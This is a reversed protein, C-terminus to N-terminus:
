YPFYNIEEKALHNGTYEIVSRTEKGTRASEVNANKKQLLAIEAIRKFMPDDEIDIVVPEYWKSEWGIKNLLRVIEFKKTRLNYELFYENGKQSPMTFKGKNKLYDIIKKNMGWSVMTAKNKSYITDGGNYELGYKKLEKELSINSKYTKAKTEFQGENIM